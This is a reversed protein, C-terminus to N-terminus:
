SQNWSLNVSLEKLLNEKMMLMKLDGNKPKLMLFTIEGSNLNFNIMAQKSNLPTFEQLDLSPSLGANKEVELLSV